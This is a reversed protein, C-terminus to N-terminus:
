MRISTISYKQWINKSPQCIPLSLNTWAKRSLPEPSIQGRCALAINMQTWEPKRIRDFEYFKELNPNEM